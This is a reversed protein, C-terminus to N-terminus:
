HFNGRKRLKEIVSHYKAAGTTTMAVIVSDKLIYYDEEQHYDALAAIAQNYELRFQRASYFLYQQYKLLWYRYLDHRQATSLQWVDDQINQVTEDTLTTPHRLIHEIIRRRDYPKMKVTTWAGEGDDDDDQDKNTTQDTSSTSENARPKEVISKTFYEEEEIELEDRRRQEEEEEENMEEENNQNEDKKEVDQDTTQKTEENNDQNVEEETTSKKEENEDINMMSLSTEVGLSDISDEPIQEYNHGLGLWEMLISENYQGYCPALLSSSHRDDVVYTNLFVALSVINRRSIEMHHTYIKM